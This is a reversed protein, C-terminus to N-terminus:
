RRVGSTKLFSKVEAYLWARFAQVQPKKLAEPLCVLHYSSPSRVSIDFLRVLQGAEIDTSVIAHRALAIGHGEIAARAAMSADEFVIGGTPEPLSLHAAQFWPMWPEQDSRLLMKLKLESPTRPLRGRNFKPSVVPYYFDDMVLEEVEGPYHASGFRIALDIPERSFNVNHASSQLMLEIEPHLEIFKGLRPSLWRAAFSPLSTITLRQHGAGAKVTEAAMLMDVLAKRIAAAFQEGGDTVTIRKGNRHFLTVGLDEELARVQHSIAGHTVHLEDAARSFNQHRAAAEFARLATLNPLRRFDSM